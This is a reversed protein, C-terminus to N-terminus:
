RKTHTPPLSCSTPLSLMLWYIFLGYFIVYCCTFHLSILCHDSILHCTVSHSSQIPHDPFTMRLHCKLQSKFSLFSGAMHFILCLLRWASPAAFAFLRLTRTLEALNLFSLDTHSSCWQGCLSHYWILSFSLCPGSLLWQHSKVTPTILVCFM